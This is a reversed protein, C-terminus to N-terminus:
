YRVYKQSLSSVPHFLKYKTGSTINEFMWWKTNGRSQYASDDIKVRVQVYNVILYELIQIFYNMHKEVGARLSSAISHKSFTIGKFTECRNLKETLM